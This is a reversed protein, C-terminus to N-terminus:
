TRAPHATALPAIMDHRTEDAVRQAIWSTGPVADLM